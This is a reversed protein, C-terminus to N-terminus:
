LVLMDRSEYVSEGVAEAGSALADTRAQWSLIGAVAADIKSPSDKREKVIVWQKNRDEDLSRLELKHAHGIHSSLTRDGSHSLDGSMMANRYNKCAAAMKTWQNTRFRLVREEGYEGSWKAMHTEWNPPDGYLKWVDWRTFAARVAEDVEAEPVEWDRSVHADLDEFPKEWIGIPWQFGTEVDTAILATSDNYRSGDFGLTILAGDEPIKGKALKKWAEADFAHGMSRVLRNLWVRELFPRDATPDSWQEVIGNIDSWEAVPGSAELVAQKLAKAKVQGREDYIPISEDAWRHFFFLRPDKIRGTEVQRAYEMTDEAVSQEGPAYATTTELAWADAALRKPLNALMTRHAKKLSALTFRHTEDFVQFTTRAGDRASPSSALSVAKGAGDIRMIRELGVDYARARPSRDIISRLAGYVLEDSQEETYAVLPIYPDTIPGGVPDKGAWRVCRVPATEDMEAFAIWAAFESKASGKRLSICVRRFRRRGAQAHSKPYVEYMRYLLARKEDDLRAPQGLLDGPGFVCHEEIWDCVQPGLTPFPKPGSPPVILVSM